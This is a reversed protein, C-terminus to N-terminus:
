EHLIHSRNGSFSRLSSSGNRGSLFSFSSTPPFRIRIRRTFIGNTQLRRRCPDLTFTVLHVICITVDGNAISLIVSSTTRVKLYQELNNITVPQDKGGKRLEITSSGPLTFDLGLDVVPCGDLNLAQIAAQRQAPTLTSDQDIRKKEEVLAMLSKYTKALIPDLLVMDSATLFREQGLLWRFFM